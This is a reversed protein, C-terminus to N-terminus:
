SATTITALVLSVRASCIMGDSLKGYTERQAIKFGGPLETGPLAVVVLDGQVFNRAGCIVGRVGGYEAGVDVQCWRIPKKFETLEEISVVHGVVLPGIVGAGLTEVTEVELGAKINRSWVLHELSACM